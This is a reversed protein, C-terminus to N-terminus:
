IPLTKWRRSQLIDQTIKQQERHLSLCFVIANVFGGSLWVVSVWHFFWAATHAADEWGFWTLTACAGKSGFAFTELVFMM